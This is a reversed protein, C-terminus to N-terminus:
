TGDGGAIPGLCHPIQRWLLDTWTQADHVGDLESDLDETTNIRKWKTAGDEHEGVAIDVWGLVFYGCLYSQDRPTLKDRQMCTVIGMLALARHEDMEGLAAFQARQAPTIVGEALKAVREAGLALLTAGQPGAVEAWAWEAEAARHGRARHLRFLRGHLKITDTLKPAPM